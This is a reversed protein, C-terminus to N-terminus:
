MNRQSEIVREVDLGTAEAIDRIEFGKALLRCDTEEKAKIRGEKLGREEAEQVELESERRAAEEDLIRKLRSEYVQYEEPTASLEEWNQFARHLTEDRMAIVELERFNDNYVKKNRLDVMGLM